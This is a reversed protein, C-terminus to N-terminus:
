SSFLMFIFKEMRTEGAKKFRIVYLKKKLNRGKMIIKKHTITIIISKVSTIKTTIPNM